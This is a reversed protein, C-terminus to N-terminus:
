DHPIIWPYTCPQPLTRVFISCKELNKRIRASCLFHLFFLPKAETRVIQVRFVCLQPASFLRNWEGMFSEAHQAIHGLSRPLNTM